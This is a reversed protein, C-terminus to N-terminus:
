LTEFPDTGDHGADIVAVFGCDATPKGNCRFPLKTGTLEEWLPQVALIHKCDISRGDLSCYGWWDPCICRREIMDVFYVREPEDPYQVVYAQCGAYEIAYDERVEVARQRREWIADLLDKAM